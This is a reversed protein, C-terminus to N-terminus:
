PALHGKRGRSLGGITTSLSLRVSGVRSICKGQIYQRVGETELKIKFGLDYCVVQTYATLM